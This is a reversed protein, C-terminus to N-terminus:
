QLGKARSMLGRYLLSCGGATAIRDREFAAAVNNGLPVAREYNGLTDDILFRARRADELRNGKEAAALEAIPFPRRARLPPGGTGGRPPGSASRESYLSSWHSEILAV